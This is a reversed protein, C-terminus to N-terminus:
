MNQFNQNFEDIKKSLTNINRTIIKFKFGFLNRLLVILFYNMTSCWFYIQNIKIGYKLLSFTAYRAHNVKLEVLNVNESVYFILPNKFQIISFRCEM